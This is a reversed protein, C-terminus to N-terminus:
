HGLKVRAISLLTHMFFLYFILYQHTNGIRFPSTRHFHHIHLSIIPYHVRVLVYHTHLHGM